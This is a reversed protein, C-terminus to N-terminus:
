TAPHPGSVSAVDLRSKALADRELNTAAKAGVLSSSLLYGAKAQESLFEATNNSRIAASNLQNNFNVFGQNMQLAIVPDLEQAMIIRGEPSNVLISVIGDGELANGASVVSRPTVDIVSM